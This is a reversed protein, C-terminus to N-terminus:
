GTRRRYDARITQTLTEAPFEGVSQMRGRDRVSRGILDRVWQNISKDEAKARAAIKRRSGSTSHYVSLNHPRFCGSLRTWRFIAVM